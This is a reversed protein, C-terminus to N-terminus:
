GFRCDKTFIARAYMAGDPSKFEVIIGARPTRYVDNKPGDKNWTYILQRDAYVEHWYGGQSHIRVLRIDDLFQLRWVEDVYLAGYTHDCYRCDEWALLFDAFAGTDSVTFSDGRPNVMVLANPRGDKWIPTLEFIKLSLPRLDETINAAFVRANVLWQVRVEAIATHWQDILPPAHVHVRYVGARAARFSFEGPATVLGGAVPRGREDYVDVAVPTGNAVNTLLKVTFRCGLGRLDGSLELEVAPKRLGVERGIKPEEGRCSIHVVGGFVWVYMPGPACAVGEGSRLPRGDVYAWGYRAVERTGLYLSAYNGYQVVVYEGTLKFLCDSCHLVPSVGEYVPFLSAIVAAALAMLGAFILVDRLFIM